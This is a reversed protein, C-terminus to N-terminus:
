AAPPLQDEVFRPRALTIAPIIAVLAIATILIIPLTWGGSLDHTFALVLPGLAGGAYGSRGARVREGRDLGFHTRTRLNILVLCLPFLIGGLGGLM